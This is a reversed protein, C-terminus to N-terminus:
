DYEDPELKQLREYKKNWYEDIPGFGNYKQFDAKLAEPLPHNYLQYDWLDRLYSLEEDKLAENDRNIAWQAACILGQAIVVRETERTYQFVDMVIGDVFRITNDDKDTWVSTTYEYASAPYGFILEM